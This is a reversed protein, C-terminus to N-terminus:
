RRGAVTYAFGREVVTAELGADEMATSLDAPTYFASDFGVLREAAVLGWGRVTTPDFERVVLVGGPRLVRAAEAFVTEVDRIHHLADVIFVADVSAARIPLRTADGAVTALGYGRAQALMGLAADVVTREPIDLRRVARGPGGGVDLARVIERDAVALGAELKSVRARPMVLNYARAFRDFAGVDAHM